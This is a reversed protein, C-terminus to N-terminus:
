PMGIAPKRSEPLRNIGSISITEKVIGRVIDRSIALGTRRDTGRGTGRANDAADGVDTVMAITIGIITVIGIDVPTSVSM